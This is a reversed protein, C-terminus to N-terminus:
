KPPWQDEADMNPVDQWDPLLDAATWETYGDPTATVWWAYVGHENHRANPDWFPHEAYRDHGALVTPEGDWRFSDPLGCRVYGQSRRCSPKHGRDRTVGCEMCLDSPDLFGDNALPNTRWWFKM